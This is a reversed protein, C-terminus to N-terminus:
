ITGPQGARVEDGLDAGQGSQRAGDARKFWDIGASRSANSGIMLCQRLPLAYSATRGASRAAGRTRPVPVVTYGEDVARVMGATGHYCSM